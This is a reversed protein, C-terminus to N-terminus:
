TGSAAASMASKTLDGIYTANGTTQVTVRQMEEGFLNSISGGACLAYTGDSSAGAESTIYVLDGFDTANGTTQITVYDIHNSNGAPQGGFIVARTSDATAAAKQNAITLDGFDGSTGSSTFNQYKIENFDTYSSNVGGFFLARTSDAAGSVWARIAPLTSFYSANSTTSVTIREIDAFWSSISYSSYAGGGAFLGYTGNGAGALKSKGATLNGFNSASAISVSSYYDMSSYNIQGSPSQSYDVGSSSGGRGGAFVIRTGNSVAALGNAYKGFGLNGFNSANGSTSIVKQDRSQFFEAGSGTTGRGHAIIAKSGGTVFPPPTISTDNITITSSTAVITGSVSDTRIEIQFTESGETTADATPTVTFSGADNSITFSGSSTTFDGSNTLTYYLTSSNAVNGTSVNVTLSAGENISSSAPTVSYTKRLTFIHAFGSGSASGTGGVRSGIVASDGEIGVGSGFGDNEDTNSGQLTSYLNWTTGGRKYIYAKGSNSSPSDINEAGIILNNVDVDISKGFHDNAGPTPHPIRQQETWTTGSRTYVYVAGADSVGSIDEFPTGVLATDGDISVATGYRAVVQSVSATLKQQQTWTTGSRTFIYASGSGSNTDDDWISGAIVTDGSIAVSTGFEDAAAVDSPQIKQQQTWTTGSRTFVYISGANSATDDEYHAGVVITDGDIGVSVGFRDNEAADSAQIKQQETWTTGSRTFVYISGAALATTDEDQLGIVATDGSIAFATTNDGDNAQADSAKLKQELTWSSGSRTYIYAAGSDTATDDDLPAGLMVTDGSIAVREGIKDLANGGAPLLLAEQSWVSPDNLTIASSTAVITGSTSGTRIRVTFTKEPEDVGDSIPTLTFSGTTGSINFSGSYVSFEAPADTDWYLTPEGPVNATTVTVTLTGGENIATSSLAISYAPSDFEVSDWNDTNFIYLRNNGAVYATDGNTGSSPLSSVNAYYTIGGSSVDGPVFKSGSNNWVLAQGDTPSSTTIDVNSIDDISSNTDLLKIWNGGHAFYGKGTAHVHAFMGHYTTANPLDGETAFMNAFKVIEADTAALARADTFYLNTGEAVDTTSKTGIWTNATSTFDSTALKTAISNTVTTSFNADDGLASALENLTDLTAPASDVLNSVQANVYTQTAFDETSGSATVALSGSNDSIQLGGLSITSGSLYLDKFAYAASGLDYAVNTAPIVNGSIAGLKTQVRADTYYVNTSGESVDDTDKTALDTNFDSTSYSTITGPEFETNSTNWVLVQGDTPAATTIDVDTLDDIGISTTATSTIDWATKASNYTWTTGSVTHTTGNSPNNPFNIPM